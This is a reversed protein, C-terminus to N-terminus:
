PKETILYLFYSQTSEEKGDAASFCLHEAEKVEQM